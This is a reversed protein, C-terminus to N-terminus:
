ADDELARGPFYTRANTRLRDRRAPQPSHAPAPSTHRKHRTRPNLRIARGRTVDIIRALTVHTVSPLFGGNKKGVM